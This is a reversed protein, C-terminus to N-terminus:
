KYFRRPLKWGYKIEILSILERKELHSLNNFGKSFKEDFAVKKKTKYDCIMLGKGLFESYVAHAYDSDLYNNIDDHAQILREKKCEGRNYIDEIEYSLDVYTNYIKNCEELKPFEDFKFKKDFVYKRCM